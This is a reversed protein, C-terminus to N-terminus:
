KLEFYKCVFISFTILSCNSTRRSSVTVIRYGKDFPLHCMPIYKHAAYCARVVLIKMFTNHARGKNAFFRFRLPGYFAVFQSYMYILRESIGCYQMCAHWSHESGETRSASSRSESSSGRRCWTWRNEHCRCLHLYNHSM